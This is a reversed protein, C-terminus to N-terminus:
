ESEELQPDTRRWHRDMRGQHIDVNLVRWLGLDLDVLYGTDLGSLSQDDWLTGVRHLLAGLWPARVLRAKLLAASVWVGTVGTMGNMGTVVTVAGGSREVRLAFM